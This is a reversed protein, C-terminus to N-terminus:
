LSDASKSKKVAMWLVFFTPINLSLLIFLDGFTLPDYVPFGPQANDPALGSIQLAGGAVTLLFFLSYGVIPLYKIVRKIEKIKRSAKVKALGVM